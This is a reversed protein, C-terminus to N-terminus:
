KIFKHAFRRDYGEDYFEVCPIHKVNYYDEGGESLRKKWESPMRLYNLSDICRLGHPLEKLKPCYFIELSYLLPMSGEELVWDEWEELKGIYLDKLQPFGAVSIQKLSPCYSIKLSHLLPMSGEEVIWEEWEELGKIELEHLQPFGSVSCVMRSGSFSREGLKVKELHALKELIPMPDEVLRCDSLSITTLQSPCHKENFLSPMYIKLELEKLHVCELVFRGEYSDIWYDKITLNKLHRLESLSSSLTKMREDDGTFLISLTELRTMQQLNLSDRATDNTSLNELTELNILNGLELKTKFRMFLPLHLYALERMEKLINPMYLLCHYNVALNLYLLQKLNRISSPLHSVKARYLSLYRLHILKGISSPLKGGEFEVHSLDLVRMLQLRTFCMGSAMWKSLLLVKRIILLSRLKPNLIELEWLYTEDDLRHVVIRRSKWPSQFTAASASNEVIHVFNDEEAKLLCLDRMVDHLQCTEFRSTKADRESIVMNRKVLEEIYGDAVQRLNAGNYNRPRPIGEAAWYYALDSVSIAYDEPFHALYLFCHKLYSPLEEFSLSLVRDISNNDDTTRGVVNHYGINTSLREWEHVIKGTEFLLSSLAKVALPLGNCHKVMEKALKEYIKYESDDKRPMAKREFLTWSDQDTLVDPKFNVHTADHMAVRDNRSTLLVKWGKKPPFIQKIKDWDEIRWIDDFVILSKSTALLQFLEDQLEAEDMKLIEDKREKSTLNKLITQWVYKQSFEQSVCVWALREFQHKVDEHNFVHRAITTKGLGGMGTVSVIQIDEKEVLYEVLTKVNAELGLFNSEHDNPFTQIGRRRQPIYGGDASTQVIIQQVGFDKMEKIVKSIRTSIGEMDLTIKRRDPIVCALRTISKRIGSTERLKQKLLFTEIIDEGDYVIEKIDEICKKVTASTHKKADADKLFSRLLNLDGKLETVQDQVGQLRECEQSLLNWLKEIGFSMLEGAM